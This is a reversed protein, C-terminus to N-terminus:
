ITVAASPPLGASDSRCSLTAVDEGQELGVVECGLHVQIRDQKAVLQRLLSRWQLASLEAGVGYTRLEDHRFKRIRENDAGRLVDHGLCSGEIRESQFADFVKKWADYDAVKHGILVAVPPMQM